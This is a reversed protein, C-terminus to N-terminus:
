KNACADRYLKKGNILAVEKNGRTYGWDNVATKEKLFEALRSDKVNDEWNFDKVSDRKAMFEAREIVDVLFLKRNKEAEAIEWPRRGPEGKIEPLIATLEAPLAYVELDYIEMIAADDAEIWFKADVRNRIAWDLGQSLKVKEIEKTGSLTVKHAVRYILNGRESLGYAIQKETGTLDPLGRESQQKQAMEIQERAWCDPCLGNFRFNVRGINDKYRGEMNIVGEHGCSYIGEYKM